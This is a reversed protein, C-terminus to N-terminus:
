VAKPTLPEAPDFYAAPLSIVKFKEDESVYPSVTCFVEPSHTTMVFKMNPINHLLYEAIRRMLMVHLSTEPMDMFYYQATPNRVAMVTMLFMRTYGNGCMELVYRLLAADEMYKEKDKASYGNRVCAWRQIDEAFDHSIEAMMRCSLIVDMDDSDHILEDAYVFTDIADYHAYNIGNKDCWRMMEHLLLTKGTGNGGIICTIDKHYWKVSQFHPVAIISEM